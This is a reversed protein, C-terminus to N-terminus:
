RVKKRLPRMNQYSDQYIKISGVIIKAEGYVVIQREDDTVYIKLSNGKEFFTSNTINASYVACPVRNKNRKLIGPGNYVINYTVFEGDTILPIPLTDGRHLKHPNITRLYYAASLVDFLPRNLTYSTDKAPRRLSKTFVDLRKQQWHFHYINHIWYGGEMTNKEYYLPKFGNLEVIAHYHDELSFIFSWKKLSYGTAVLNVCKKGEYTITDAKLEV